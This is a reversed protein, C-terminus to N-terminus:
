PKIEESVDEWKTSALTNLVGAALDRLVAEHEAPVGRQLADTPLRLVAARVAQQVAAYLLGVSRRPVLERRERRLRLENLRAVALDRRDRPMQPKLERVHRLYAPVLTALDYSSQQGRRGRFTPTLTGAAELREFTRVSVGIVRAAAPRNVVLAAKTM